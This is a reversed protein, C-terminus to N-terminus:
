PADVPKDATAQRSDWQEQANALAYRGAEDLSNFSRDLVACYTGDSRPYLELMPGAPDELYVPEATEHGCRWAVIPAQERWVSETTPRAGQTDVYILIAYTGAAAPVTPVQSTVADEWITLYTTGLREGSHDYLSVTRKERDATVSGIRSLAVWSRGTTEVFGTM